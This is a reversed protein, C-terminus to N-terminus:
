RRPSKGRGGYGLLVYLPDWGLLSTVLPYFAFLVLALEWPSAVRGSFGGLGMAVALLLRLLRDWRTLNTPLM